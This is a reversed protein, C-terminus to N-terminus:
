LDTEMAFWGVNLVLVNKCYTFRYMRWRVRLEWFSGHLSIDFANNM